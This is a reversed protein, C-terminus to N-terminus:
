RGHFIWAEPAASGSEPAEETFKRVIQQVAQQYALYDVPKVVYGDAGSTKAFEIDKDEGSSSMMVVPMDTFRADSRIRSLVDLGNLKPLKIDLIVVDFRRVAELHDLAELGYRAVIVVPAPMLKSLGRLALKEDDLDDEVLLIHRSM